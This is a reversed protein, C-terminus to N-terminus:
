PQNGVEVAHTAGAEVRLLSKGIRAVQEGALREWGIRADEGGAELGRLVDNLRQQGSGVVDGGRGVDDARQGFIRQTLGGDRAEVVVRRTDAVPQAAARSCPDERTGAGRRPTRLLSPYPDWAAVPVYGAHRVMRATWALPSRNTRWCCFSSCVWGGSKRRAVSGGTGCGASGASDARADATSAAARRSGAARM